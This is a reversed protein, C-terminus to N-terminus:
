PSPAQASRCNRASELVQKGPARLAGPFGKCISRTLRNGEGKEKDEREAVDAADLAALEALLWKRREERVVANAPANSRRSHPRAAGRQGMGESVRGPTPRSSARCATSCIVLHAAVEEPTLRGDGVAATLARVARGVDGPGATACSLNAAGCVSPARTGATDLGTINMGRAPDAPSTVGQKM